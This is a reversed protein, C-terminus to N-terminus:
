FICRCKGDFCLLMMYPPCVVDECDSFTKCAHGANAASVTSQVQNGIEDVM